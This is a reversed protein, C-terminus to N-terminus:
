SIIAGVGVDDAAQTVAARVNAQDACAETVVKWSANQVRTMARAAGLQREFVNRALHRVVCGPEIAHVITAQDLDALPGVDVHEVIGPEVEATRLHM